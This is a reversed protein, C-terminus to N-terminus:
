SAAWGASCAAWQGSAAPGSARSGTQNAPPILGDVLGAALRLRDGAGPGAHDSRSRALAARDTLAAQTSLSLTAGNTAQMLGNNVISAGTGQLSLTQGALNANIGGNNTLNLNQFTTANSGIVGSGQITLNNTLTLLGNNSGIQGANMQVVGAAGSLTTDGILELAGGLALTGGGGTGLNLM